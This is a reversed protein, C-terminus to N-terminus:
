QEYIGQLDKGTPEQFAVLNFEALIAYFHDFLDAQIGEYAVWANNNAFCYVEIPIGQGTPALQRVLITYENHVKPHNQIYANVYARFTGINTLNRQNVINEGKPDNNANYNVIEKQKEQIYSSILHIKKLREMDGMTLFEVSNIDILMSRKIRRGGSSSMGEWNKFSDEIFRYAPIYSITKDWNQVAIRTLSMDIVEGDAGYKPMEIWDGISMMNNMSLQVGAVFGLISDKFVLLLIASMGGISSLLAWVSASGTFTGLVIVTFFVFLVIKVIQLFGKIPMSKSKERRTYVENGIDILKYIGNLLIGMVIAFLIKIILEGTQGLTTAFAMLIVLAVIKSLSHFIKREYMLEDVSTKTKYVLKKVLRLIVKKTIADAIIAVIIAIMVISVVALVSTYAEEMGVKEKFLGEFLEKM